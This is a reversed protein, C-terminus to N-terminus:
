FDEDGLGSETITGATLPNGALDTALTSVTWKLATNGHPTQTSATPTGLTVVAAGGSMLLTSGTFSMTATVYKKGSTFSGLAAQVTNASNWVTVVDPNGNTFRVTVPALAGTWGALISPPSMPESFTYVITDGTEPHASTGADTTQIDVGTPGSNDVVRGALTASTTTNGAVDTALARFDYGGDALATTDLSCSYASTADTCITTWSTTGAPARQITV